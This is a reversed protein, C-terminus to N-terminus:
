RSLKTALSIPPGTRIPPEIGVLLHTTTRGCSACYFSPQLPDWHKKPQPKKQPAKANLANRAAILASNKLRNSLIGYHRIRIFRHPVIHTAFRRIFEWQSLQMIQTQGKKRYNKYSFRVKGHDIDLIRHNNIAISHSYRGIYNIVHQPQKFPAKTYTIWQKLFLRRFLGPPLNKHAIHRDKIAKRLLKVYRARFVSGM